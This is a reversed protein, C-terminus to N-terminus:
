MRLANTAFQLNENSDFNFKFKAPQKNMLKMQANHAENQRLQGYHWVSPLDPHYEDLWIQFPGDYRGSFRPFDNTPVTEWLVLQGRRFESMAQGAGAENALYDVTRKLWFNEWALWAAFSAVLVLAVLLIITFARKKM